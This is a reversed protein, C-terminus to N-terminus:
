STEIYCQAPINAYPNEFLTRSKFQGIMPIKYENAVLNQTLYLLIIVLNQNM